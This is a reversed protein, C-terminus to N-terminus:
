DFVFGSACKSNVFFFLALAQVVVLAMHTVGAPVDHEVHRKEEGFYRTCVWFSYCVWFLLFLVGLVCVNM